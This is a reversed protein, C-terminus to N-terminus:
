RGIFHEVLAEYIDLATDINLEVTSTQMLADAEMKFARPLYELCEKFQFKNVLFDVDAECVPMDM